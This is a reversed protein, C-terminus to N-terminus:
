SMKSMENNGQIVIPFLCCCALTAVSLRYKRKVNIKRPVTKEHISKERFAIQIKCHYKLFNTSFSFALDVKTCLHESGHLIKVTYIQWLSESGRETKSSGEFSHIKFMEAGFYIDKVGNKM